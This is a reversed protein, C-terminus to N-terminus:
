ATVLSAAEIVSKTRARDNGKKTLKFTRQPRGKTTNGSEDTNKVSGVRQVLGAQILNLMMPMNTGLQKVTQGPNAKLAVLIAPGKRAPRGPKGKKQTKTATAM